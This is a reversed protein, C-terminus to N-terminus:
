REPAAVRAIMVQPRPRDGGRKPHAQYNCVAVVEKGSRFVSVPFVSSKSTTVSSRWLEEGRADAARIVIENVSASLSVYPDPGSFPVAGPFATNPLPKEWLLDLNSNFCALRNPFSPPLRYPAGAIPPLEGTTYSVLVGDSHRAISHASGTRGDEIFTEGLKEGDDSIRVVWLRSRGQGFKNYDGTQGVVIASGDELPVAASLLDMHLMGRPLPEATAEPEADNQPNLALKWVVTGLSDIRAVWAHRQKRSDYMDMGCLLLDGNDYQMVGHTDDNGALTQEAIVEGDAGVSRLMTTTGRKLVITVGAEPRNPLLGVVEVGENREPRLLEKEWVKEGESNIHWLWLKEGDAETWSRGGIYLGDDNGTAVKACSPADSAVEFMRLSKVNEDGVPPALVANQQSEARASQLALTQQGGILVAMASLLKVLHSAELGFLTHNV